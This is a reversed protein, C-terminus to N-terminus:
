GIIVAIAALSQRSVEELGLPIVESRMSVFTRVAFAALKEVGFPEGLLFNM